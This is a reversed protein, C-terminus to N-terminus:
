MQAQSQCVPVFLTHLLRCQKHWYHMCALFSCSEAVILSAQPFLHCGGAPVAHLVTFIFVIGGAFYTPLVYLPAGFKHM